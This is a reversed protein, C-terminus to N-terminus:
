GQVPAQGHKWAVAFGQEYRMDIRSIRELQIQNIVSELQKLGKMANAGDLWIKLEEGHSLLWGSTSHTLATLELRHRKGWRNFLLFHEMVKRSDAESSTLEPLDMSPIAVPLIEGKQSLLKNGNWIAVPVEEIINVLLSGSWTKEVRATAVMPLVELTTKIADVNLSVFGEPFMGQLEEKIHRETVHLLQGQIELRDIPKNALQLILVTVAVMVSLVTVSISIPKAWKILPISRGSSQQVRTAGKKM